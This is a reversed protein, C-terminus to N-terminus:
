VPMKLVFIITTSVSLHEDELYQHVKKQLDTLADEINLSRASLNYEECVAVFWDNEKHISVTIKLEM